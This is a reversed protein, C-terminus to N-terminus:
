GGRGVSAGVGSVLVVYFNGISFSVVTVLALGVERPGSVTEATKHM